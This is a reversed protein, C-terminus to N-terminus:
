AGEGKEETERERERERDHKLCNRMSLALSPGVDVDM